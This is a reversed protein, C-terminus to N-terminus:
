ESAEIDSAEQTESPPAPSTEEETVPTLRIDLGILVTEIKWENRNWDTVIRKAELRDLTQEVYFPVKDEYEQLLNLKRGIFNLVGSISSFGHQDIWKQGEPSGADPGSFTLRFSRIAKGFQAGIGDGLGIYDMHLVHVQGDHVHAAKYVRDLETEIFDTKLAINMAKAMNELAVEAGVKQPSIPMDLDTISGAKRATIVDKSAGEAGSPLGISFDMEGEPPSPTSSM